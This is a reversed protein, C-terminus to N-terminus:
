RKAKKKWKYIISHSVNFAIFQTRPKSTNTKSLGLMIIIKYTKTIEPKSMHAAVRGGKVGVERM